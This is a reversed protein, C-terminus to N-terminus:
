ESICFTSMQGQHINLQQINGHAKGASKTMGETEKWSHIAFSIKRKSKWNGFFQKEIQKKGKDMWDNM